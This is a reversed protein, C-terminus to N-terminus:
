RHRSRGLPRSAQRSRGGDARLSNTASSLEVSGSLRRGAGTYGSGATARSWNHSPRHQHPCRKKSPLRATAATRKNPRLRITTPKCVALRAQARGLICVARVPPRHLRTAAPRHYERRHSMCRSCGPGFLRASGSRSYGGWRLMSILGWVLHTPARTAVPQACYDCDHSRSRDLM